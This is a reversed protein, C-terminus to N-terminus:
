RHLRRPPVQHPRHPANPPATGTRDERQEAAATEDSCPALISHVDRYSLTGIKLAHHCAAEPRAASYARLLSMLGLCTRHCQEPHLRSELLREVFTATHPGVERGWAILKSVRKRWTGVSRQRSNHPYPPTLRVCQSVGSVQRSRKLLPTHGAPCGM